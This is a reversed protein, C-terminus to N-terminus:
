QPAFSLMYVYVSYSYMVPSSANCKTLLQEILFHGGGWFFFDKHFIELMFASVPSKRNGVFGPIKRHFDGTVHALYRKKKMDHISVLESLM